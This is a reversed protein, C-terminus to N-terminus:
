PYNINLDEFGNTSRRGLLSVAIVIICVVLAVFLGFELATAGEEQSARARLQVWRNAADTYLKLLM